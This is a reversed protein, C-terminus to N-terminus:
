AEIKRYRRLLITICVACAALMVYMYLAGPLDARGVASRRRAEIEFLWETYGTILYVPHVLVSYRKVDGSTVTRFMEVVAPTLLFFVIVAASGYGRRSAFSALMLAISAVFV